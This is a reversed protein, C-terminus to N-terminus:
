HCTFPMLVPVLEDTKEVVVSLLPSITVTIRVELSDHRVVGEAVELWIAMVTVAGEAGVTLMVTLGAPGIQSSSLTIKVATDVSPPEVGEYWHCTLPM